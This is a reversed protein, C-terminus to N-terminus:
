KMGPPAPPPPPNNEDVKDLQEIEKTRPEIEDKVRFEIKSIMVSGNNESLELFIQIQYEIGTETRTFYTREYWLSSSKDNIFASPTSGEEYPHIESVKYIIKEFETTDVTISSPLQSYVAQAEGQEILELVTVAKGLKQYDGSGKDLVRTQGFTTLTFLVFSYTIILRM